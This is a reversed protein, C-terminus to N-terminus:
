KGHIIELFLYNFELIFWFKELILSHVRSNRRQHKKIPHLSNLLMFDLRELHSHLAFALDRSELSFKGLELPFHSTPNKGELKWTTKVELKSLLKEMLGQKYQYM